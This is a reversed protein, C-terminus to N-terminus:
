VRRNHAVIGQQIARTALQVRNKLGSKELMSRIHGKATHETICLDGAIEPNTRGQAVLQLVEVERPTLSSFGLEYPEGEGSDIGIPASAAVVIEGNHVREITRVVEDLDCRKELYGRAGAQLAQSASGLQGDVTLVLVARGAQQSLQTVLDPGGEPVMPEVIVVDPEVSQVITLAETGSGAEGVIRLGRRRNLLNALCRRALVPSDVLFLRIREKM